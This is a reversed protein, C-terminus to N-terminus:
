KKLKTGYYRTIILQKENKDLFIQYVDKDVFKNSIDISFNKGEQAAKVLDLIHKKYSNEEVPMSIQKKEMERLKLGLEQKQETIFSLISEEDYGRGKKKTIEAWKNDDSVPVIDPVTLAPERLEKTTKKRFDLECLVEPDRTLLQNLIDIEENADDIVKKPCWINMRQVYAKNGTGRGLIQVLEARNKSHYNSIIMDTFNFGNTCFTVGRGLCEYGTIALDIHKHIARWAVLTHYLEGNIKHYKNFDEISEFTRDPYQFGKQEGNLLLVSFGKAHFMDAMAYHSSKEVKAPAFIILPTDSSRETLINSLVKEAYHIPNDILIDIDNRICHENISRYNRSLEEHNYDMVEENRLYHHINDLEIIGGKKMKKWFQISPTATIFHIDRLVTNNLLIEKNVNKLFDSILGINKDAEDFMVTTTIQHIGIKIFDLNGSQIQTLLEIVDSTRADHTCMVIIDPLSNASKTKVLLNVIQDVKNFSSDKKSSLTYCNMGFESTGVTVRTKWQGTEVLNNNTLIITMHHIGNEQPGRNARAVVSCHKIYELAKCTKSSTFQTLSTNLMYEIREIGKKIKSTMIGRGDFPIVRDSIPYIIENSAM